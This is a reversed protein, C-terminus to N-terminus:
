GNRCFWPSREKIHNQPDRSVISVAHQLPHRRRLAVRVFLAFFQLFVRSPYLVRVALCMAAGQNSLRNTMFRRRTGVPGTARMVDWSPEIM